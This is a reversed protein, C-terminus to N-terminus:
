PSPVWGMASGRWYRPKAGSPSSFRSLSFLLLLGDSAKTSFPLGASPRSSNRTSAYPFLLLSPSREKTQRVPPRGSSSFGAAKVIPEIGANTLSDALLMGSPEPSLAFIMRVPPVTVSAYRFGSAPFCGHEKHIEPFIDVPFIGPSIGFNSDEPARGAGHISASVKGQDEM